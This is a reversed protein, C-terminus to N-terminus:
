VSTVSPFTDCRLIICLRVQIHNDVAAYAALKKAEEAMLTGHYRRSKSKSCVHKEGPLFLLLSRRNIVAFEAWRQLRM